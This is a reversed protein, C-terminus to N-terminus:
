VVGGPVRQLDWPNHVPGFHSHENSSGMAFEDMNPKGVSIAGADALRATATAEYPPVFAELMRSGCTTRIGRTCFIDKHAIPIGCLPPADGRALQEDARRAAELAADDDITIFANLRTQAQHVRRLSEQVLETASFRRSGLNKRLESISQTLM